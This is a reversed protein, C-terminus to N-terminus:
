KGGIKDRYEEEQREYTGGERSKHKHWGFITGGIALLSFVYFAYHGYDGLLWIIAGGSVIFFFTTYVFEIDRIANVIGIITHGTESTTSDIRLIHQELKDLRHILQQYREQEEENM